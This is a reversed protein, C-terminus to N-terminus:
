FLKITRGNRLKQIKKSPSNNSFKYTDCLKKNSRIEKEYMRDVFFSYRSDIEHCLMDIKKGFYTSNPSNSIEMKTSM